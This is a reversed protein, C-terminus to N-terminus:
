FWFLKSFLFILFVTLWVTVHMLAAVCCGTYVYSKQFLTFDVLPNKCRVEYHYFAIGSCLALLFLAGSIMWYQFDFQKFAINASLTFVVSILMGIYDFSTSQKHTVGVPMSRPFLLLAFVAVISNFVFVMRWSLWATLFGGIVLGLAMSMLGVSVMLGLARGREQKPFTTTLVSMATIFIFSGNIGQVARLLVLETLPMPFCAVASTLLFLLLNIILLRKHGWCDGLKGAIFVLAARALVYSNIVWIIATESTKFYRQMAPMAISFVTNDMYVISTALLLAFFLLRNSQTSLTM